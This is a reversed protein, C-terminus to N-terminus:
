KVIFNADAMAAWLAGYAKAEDSVGLSIARMTDRNRDVGGERWIMKRYQNLVLDTRATESPQVSASEAQDSISTIFPFAVFAKLESREILSRLFVDYPADLHEQGDMLRCLKGASRGNVVYASSGFFRIAKLDLYTVRDEAVLRRRLRLLEYMDVIETVGLDTFLVDWALRNIGAYALFDDIAACTRAGILVDDEFVAFHFPQSTNQRLIQNHSLYRAKEAASISGGINNNIIYSTDVAPVRTLSWGPAGTANFNDEVAGRRAAASDLNIYFCKM